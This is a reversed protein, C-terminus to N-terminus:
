CCASPRRPLSQAAPRHRKSRALLLPIQRGHQGGAADCLAPLAPLRQDSRGSQADGTGADAARRAACCARGRRRRGRIARRRLFRALLCRRPRHPWPWRPLPHGRRPGPDRHRPAYGPSCPHALNTARWKLRQVCISGTFTTHGVLVCVPFSCRVPGPTTEAQRGAQRGAQRCAQKCPQRGLFTGDMCIRRRAEAGPCHGDDQGAHAGGHRALQPQCLRHRGGYLVRPPIHFRQQAPEWPRVRRARGGPSHTCPHTLPHISSRHPLAPQAHAVMGPSPPQVLPSRSSRYRDLAHVHCAHRAAAQMRRGWKWRLLSSRGAALRQGRARGKGRGAWRRCTSLSGWARRRSSVRWATGRWTRKGRGHPRSCRQRSGTLTCGPSRRRRAALRPPLARRARPTRKRAAAAARASASCTSRLL